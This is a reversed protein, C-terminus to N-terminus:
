FLGPSRFWRRQPFFFYIYVCVCFFGYCCGQSSCQFSQRGGSMHNGAREGALAASPPTPPGEFILRPASGQAAREFSRSSAMDAHASIRHGDRQSGTM